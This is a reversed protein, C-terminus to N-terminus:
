LKKYLLTLAKYMTAQAWHLMPTKDIIGFPYMRFYFFGGKGDQMNDIAWDAVKIALSLAEDDYDSFNALTEISQSICQSDIPYTKNHYYKPTGDELFFQKKYYNLGKKLGSEYYRDQTSDMYCKICDLNYGTHFNDIWHNMPDEAYWWSGDARQRSCSYEVAEKAITLLQPDGLHRFSRALM